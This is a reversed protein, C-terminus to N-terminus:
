KANIDSGIKQILIESYEGSGMECARGEPNVALVVWAGKEDAYIANM